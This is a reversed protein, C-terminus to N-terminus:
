GFGRTPLGKESLPQQHRDVDEGFADLLDCHNLAKLM